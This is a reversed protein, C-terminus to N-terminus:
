CKKTQEKLDEPDGPRARLIITARWLWDPCRICAQTFAFGMPQKVGWCDAGDGVCSEGRSENEGRVDVLVLSSNAAKRLVGSVTRESPISHQQVGCEHEAYCASSAAAALRPCTLSSYRTERM